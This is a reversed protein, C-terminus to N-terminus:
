SLMRHLHEMEEDEKDINFEEWLEQNCKAIFVKLDGRETLRVKQYENSEAYCDEDKWITYITEVKDNDYTIDISTIDNYSNIRDFIDQNAGWPTKETRRAEKFICFYVDASTFKSISNCACRHINSTFNQVIFNELDEPYLIIVECNEFVLEIKKINNSM